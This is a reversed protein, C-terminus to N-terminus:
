ELASTLSYMGPIAVAHQTGSPELLLYSKAAWRPWTMPKAFAPVSSAFPQRETHHNLLPAALTYTHMCAQVRQGDVESPDCSQIFRRPALHSYSVLRHSAVTKKSCGSTRLPCARPVRSPLPVPSGFTDHDRDYIRTRRVFFMMKSDPSAEDSGTKSATWWVVSDWVSMQQSNQCLRIDADFKCHFLTYITEYCPAAFFKALNFRVIIEQSGVFIKTM